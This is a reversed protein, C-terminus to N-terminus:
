ISLRRQAGAISLETSPRERLVFDWGYVKNLDRAYLATFENPLLFHKNPTENNRQQFIITKCSARYMEWLLKISPDIGCEQVFWRGLADLHPMVYRNVACFERYRDEITDGTYRIRRPLQEVHFRPVNAIM